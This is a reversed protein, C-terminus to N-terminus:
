LSALSAYLKFSKRDHHYIIFLSLKEKLDKLVTADSNIETLFNQYIKKMTKSHKFDSKISRMVFSIGDKTKINKIKTLDETLIENEWYFNTNRTTSQSFGNSLFSLFLAFVLVKKVKKM